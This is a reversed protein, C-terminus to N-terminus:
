LATATRGSKTQKSIMQLRADRGVPFAPQKYPHATCGSGL